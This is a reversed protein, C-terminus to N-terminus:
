LLLGVPKLNLACLQDHIQYEYTLSTDHPQVKAPNIRRGLNAYSTKLHCRPLSAMWASLPRAEASRLYENRVAVEAARKESVGWKARRLQVITM